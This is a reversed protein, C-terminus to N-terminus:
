PLSSAPGPIHFSIPSPRAPRGLGQPENMVALIKDINSTSACLDISHIRDRKQLALLAGQEDKAPSRRGGGYYVILPFPPSHSLMDEVPTGFTCVLHLDLRSASTFIIARWQRCTHSDTGAKIVGTPSLTRDVPTSYKSPYM